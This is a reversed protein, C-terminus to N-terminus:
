LAFCVNLAFNASFSKERVSKDFSQHDVRLDKIRLSVIDDIWGGSSTLLIIFVSSYSLAFM